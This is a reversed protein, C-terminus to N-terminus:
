GMRARHATRALQTAENSLDDAYSKYQRNWFLGQNENVYNIAEGTVKAVEKLSPLSADVAAQQSPTLQGRILELRHLKQGMDNVDNRIQNLEDAQFHWDLTPTDSAARVEEAKQDVQRAETTIGKFLRSAEKSFNWTSSRMASGMDCPMKAAVSRGQFLLMAALVVASRACIKLNM